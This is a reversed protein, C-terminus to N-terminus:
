AASKLGAEGLPPMQAPWGTEREYLAAMDFLDAEAFPRGILHFGLPLGGASFGCPVNLSPLGLYSVPRSLKTIRAALEPVASTSTFDTDARTPAPMVPGLSMVIDVDRYVEDLYRQLWRGRLSAAELYQVAPIMMGAEIRARATRGYDEPRKRLWASHMTATEAKLMMDGLTFLRDFDPLEVARIRIGLSALVGRAQELGSAMDPDVGARALLTEPVGITLTKAREAVVRGDYAGHDPAAITSADRPSTGAIVAFVAATDAATRALPGITDLSWSRPMAGSRPVAGNTPKIGYVGCFTAPNRISGGTDSGLAAPVLRAAVAAASGSSSGGTVCATNWPNCADGVHENHGTSGAAFEALNLAALEVAGAADLRELVTATEAGTVGPLIASGGSVAAGKRWFMDKHALPIGDLPGRATGKARRADAAAGAARAGELDVRLVANLAPNHAEIRAAHAEVLEVSSFTGAALGASMEALTLSWLEGSM